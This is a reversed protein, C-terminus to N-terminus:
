PGIYNCHYLQISYENCIHILTKNLACGYCNACLEDILANLINLTYSNKTDM